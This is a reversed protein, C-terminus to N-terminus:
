EHVGTFQWKNQSNKEGRRKQSSRAKRSWGNQQNDPHQTLGPGRQHSAPAAAASVAGVSSAPAAAMVSIPGTAFGSTFRHSQPAPKEMQLTPLAAGARCPQTLGPAAKRSRVPRSRSRRSSSSSSLPKRWGQARHRGTASGATSVNTKEEMHSHM